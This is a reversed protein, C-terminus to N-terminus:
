FECIPFVDVLFANPTTTESFQDMATDVLKVLEDNHDKAKYGYTVMLVLSGSYRYILSRRLLDMDLLKVSRRTHEVWATPEALISQLYLLSEQQFLDSFASVKMKTGIFQSMLKRYESWRSGFPSLAPGQDWGILQGAMTLIPRDSYLRGKKDLMETAHKADNLIIVDKGLISVHVIGGIM